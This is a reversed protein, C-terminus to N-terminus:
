IMEVSRFFLANKKHNRLYTLVHALSIKMCGNRVLSMGIYYRMLTHQKMDLARVTKVSNMDKFMVSRIVNARYEHMEAVIVNDNVPLHECMHKAKLETIPRHSRSEMHLHILYSNLLWFEDAMAGTCRQWQEYLRRDKVTYGKEHSYQLGFYECYKRLTPLAEKLFAVSFLGQAKNNVM